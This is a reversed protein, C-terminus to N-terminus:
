FDVRRHTTVDGDLLDAVAREIEQGVKRAADGALDVVDIGAIVDEAHLPRVRRIDRQRLVSSKCGEDHASKIRADMEKFFVNSPHIAPCPRASAVGDKPRSHGAIVSYSM